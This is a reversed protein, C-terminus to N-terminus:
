SPIVHHIENFSEDRLREAEKEVNEQNRLRKLKRKHTKTLGSPCWVPQTYKRDRPNALVTKSSSAEHDNATPRTAIPSTLNTVVSKVTAILKTISSRPMITLIPKTVSAPNEAVKPRKIKLVNSGIIVSNANTDM